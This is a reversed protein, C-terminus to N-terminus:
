PRIYVILLRLARMGGSDDEWGKALNGALKALKCLVLASPPPNCTSLRAVVQPVLRGSSAASDRLESSSGTMNDLCCVAQAVSKM